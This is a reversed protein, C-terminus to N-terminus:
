SAERHSLSDTHLAACGLLAMAATEVRLRHQGLGVPAAGAGM